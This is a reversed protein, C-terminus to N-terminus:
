NKIIIQDYKKITFNLTLTNTGIGQWRALGIISGNYSVLTTSKLVFPITINNEGDTSIEHEFYAPPTIVGSTQQIDVGLVCTNISKTPPLPILALYENQTSMDIITTGLAVGTNFTNSPLTTYIIKTTVVQGSLCFNIFLLIILFLRKM